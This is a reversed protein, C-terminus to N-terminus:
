RTPELAPRRAAPPRTRGPRCGGARDPSRSTCRATRRRGRRDPGRAVAAHLAHDEARRVARKSPGGGVPGAACRSGGSTTITLRLRPLPVRISISRSSPSIRGAPYAPPACGCRPPRPRPQRGPRSPRPSRSRRGGVVPEAEQRQPVLAVVEDNRLAPPVARRHQREPFGQGLLHRALPEARAAEEQGAPISMARAASSRTPPELRRMPLGFASRRKPAPSAGPACWM